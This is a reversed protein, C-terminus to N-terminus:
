SNGKQVTEKKSEKDLRALANQIQKVRLKEKPGIRLVKEEFYEGDKWYGRVILELPDNPHDGSKIGESRAKLIATILEVVSKVVTLGATTVALYVLLEPGSEHEVIEYHVASLDAHRIYDDILAYAEPSHERHFCGSTIRVKISVPALNGRKAPGFRSMRERFEQEWYSDM